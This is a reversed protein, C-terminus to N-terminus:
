CRIEGQIILNTKYKLVSAHRRNVKWSRELIKTTGGHRYDGGRTCKGRERAYSAKQTHARTNQHRERASLRRRTHVGRARMRVTSKAHASSYKISKNGHINYI